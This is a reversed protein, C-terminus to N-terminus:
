NSTSKWIEKQVKRIVLNKKKNNLSAVIFRQANEYSYLENVKM